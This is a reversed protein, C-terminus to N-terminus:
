INNLINIDKKHRAIEVLNNTAWIVEDKINNKRALKLIKEAIKIMEESNKEAQALSYLEKLYKMEYEYDEEVKSFTMGENLVKKAKEYQGCKIYMHGRNITTKYITDPNFKASVLALDFYKNSNEYDKNDMYSLAMNNYIMGKFENSIFGDNLLEKYINLAEQLLHLKRYNSAKLIICKIILPKELDEKLMEEIIQLSKNFDGLNHYVSAINYNIINKITFKQNIYCYSLAEKYYILAEEYQMRKLKVNGISNYINEKLKNSNLRDIMNLCSIYKEYAKDVEKNIFFINGIKKTAIIKAWPFNNKEAYDMIENCFDMTEMTNQLEDCLKCLDEEETRAIFEEDLDLPIGKDKAYNIANKMITVAVDRSMNRKAGEIMSIFERTLNEGALEKQTINLIQRIYTLKENRSKLEIKAM